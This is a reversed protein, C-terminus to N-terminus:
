REYLRASPTFEAVEDPSKEPFWEYKLKNAQILEVMLIGEPSPTVGPRFKWWTAVSYKIKGSAPTVNEPLPANGFVFWLFPSKGSNLKGDGDSLPSADAIYV